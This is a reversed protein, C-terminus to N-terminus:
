SLNLEFSANNAFPRFTISIVPWFGLLLFFSEWIPPRGGDKFKLNKGHRTGSFWYMGYYLNGKSLFAM